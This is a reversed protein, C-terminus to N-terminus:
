FNAAGRGKKPTQDGDLLFDSTVTHFKTAGVMNCTSCKTADVMNCTSCKTAGVM